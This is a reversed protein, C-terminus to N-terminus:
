QVLGSSRDSIRASRRRSPAPRGSDAHGRAGVGRPAVAPRRAGRHQEDVEARGVLRRRGRQAAVQGFEEAVGPDDLDRAGRPQRDQVADDQARPRGLGGGLVGADPCGFSRRQRHPRLALGGQEFAVEATPEALRLRRHQYPVRHAVALRRDRRHEIRQLGLAGRADEHQRQVRLVGARGRRGRVVRDVAPEGALAPLGLQAEDVAVGVVVAVDARQGGPHAGVPGLVAAAVLEHEAEVAHGLARQPEAIRVVALALEGGPQQALPEPQGAVRQLDGELAPEALGLPELRVGFRRQDRERLLPQTADVHHAGAERGVAELRQLLDVLLHALREEPGAAALEVVHGAQVVM